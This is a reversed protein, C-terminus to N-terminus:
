WHSICHAEDICVAICNERFTPSSLMARWRDVSLLSEPSVYVHSYIGEEIDDLVKSDQDSYIATASIGLSKLYAVQDLMLSILPCVVIAISTGFVQDKLFDYLIPLSQYVLSKGYGTRASLYVDKGRFFAKMCNLQEKHLKEIKFISCLFGLAYEFGDGELLSSDLVHAM